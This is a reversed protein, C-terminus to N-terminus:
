NADYFVGYQEATNIFLQWTDQSQQRVILSRLPNTYMRGTLLNHEAWATYILQVYRIETETM